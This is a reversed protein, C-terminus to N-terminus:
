YTKKITIKFSSGDDLDVYFYSYGGDQRWMVTRLLGRVHMEVLRRIM